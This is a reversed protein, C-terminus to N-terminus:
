NQFDGEDGLGKEWYQSFPPLISTGRGSNPSPNLTLAVLTLHERVVWM